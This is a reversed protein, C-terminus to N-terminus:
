YILLSIIWHQESPVVVSILVDLCFMKCIGNSKKEISYQQIERFNTGMQVPESLPLDLDYCALNNELAPKYSVYSPNKYSNIKM